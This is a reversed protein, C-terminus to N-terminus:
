VHAGYAKLAQDISEFLFLQGEHLIAGTDCYSRITEVNHSVIIVDSRVAREQFAKLAKKRFRGDGVETIEDILYVEFDISLCVGFALKSLMGSSYHSVIDDYARGLETFEQVYDEIEAIRRGYVKAIFACNERGTLDPHFVSAFGLPFSVLRDRVIRGSDPHESGALLRILSSKGAGNLGFVGVNHGTPFEATVRDLVRSVRGDRSHYIKTVDELRIM